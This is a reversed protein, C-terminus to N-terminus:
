IKVIEKLKETLIPVIKYVDGVIGYDSTKFITADSNKNISIVTGANGIGAVFQIQGSIGCVFILRPSVSKGSQGIQLSRRKIGMDIVPRSGGVTAGFVDALDHLIEFDQSSKFARGGAVIIEAENIPLVSDEKEVIKLVKYKSDEIKNLKRFSIKPIVKNTDSVGFVNPRSTIFLKEENQFQLKEIIRGGYIPKRFVISYDDKFEMDIIDSVGYANYHQSLRPLVDRGVYTNGFFILDPKLEDIIDTYIYEVIEPNHCRLSEDIVSIINKIGLEGIQKYTDQDIKSGYILGYVENRDVVQKSSLYTLIEKSVNKVEGNSYEINVLIRREMTKGRIWIHEFNYYRIM